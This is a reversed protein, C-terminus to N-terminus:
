CGPFEVDDGCQAPHVVPLAALRIRFLIHDDGFEPGDYGESRKWPVPVVRGQRYPFPISLGAAEVDGKVLKNLDWRAQWYEDM